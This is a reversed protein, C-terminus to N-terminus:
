QSAFYTLMLAKYYKSDSHTQTGDNQVHASLTWASHLINWQYIKVMAGQFTKTSLVCKDVSGNGIQM